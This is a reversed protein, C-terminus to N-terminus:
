CLVMFFFSIPVFALVVNKPNHLKKDGSTKKNELFCLSAFDNRVRFFMKKEGANLTSLTVRCMELEGLELGVFFYFILSENLVGVGFFVKSNTTIPQEFFFFVLKKKNQSM